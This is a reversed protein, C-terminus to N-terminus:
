HQFLHKSLKITMQILTGLQAYESWNSNQHQYFCELALNLALTFYPIRNGLSTEM